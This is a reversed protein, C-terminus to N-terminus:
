RVDVIKQETVTNHFLIGDAMYVDETEVDISYTNVTETILENSTIEVWGSGTYFSDGVLVDIAQKFLIDNGTTKVLIPHESTVKTLGNNFNRYSTHQGAIVNMVTATSSSASFQNIQSSYEEWPSTTEDDGLGTIDYSALVDGVQLDEVLKTTGDALNMVTGEVHCPAWSFDISTDSSQDLTFSNGPNFNITLTDGGNSNNTGENVQITVEGTSADVFSVSSSAPGSPNEVTFYTYIGNSDTDEINVYVAGDWNFSAITTDTGTFTSPDVGTFEFHFEPISTTTTISNSPATVLVSCGVTADDPHTIILYKQNSSLGGSPGAQAEANEETSPSTRVLGSSANPDVHSFTVSAENGGTTYDNDITPNTVWYPAPSATHGSSTPLTDSWYVQASTLTGDPSMDVTYTVTADALGTSNDDSYQSLGEGGSYESVVTVNTSTLLMSTAAVPVFSLYLTDEGQGAPADGHRFDITTGVSESPWTSQDSNLTIQIDNSTIDILTIWTPLTSIISPPTTSNPTQTYGISASGPTAANFEIANQGTTGRALQLSYNTTEVQPTTATREEVVNGTANTATMRITYTTSATLETITYTFNSTSNGYDTVIYSGIGTFNGGTGTGWTIEVDTSNSISDWTTELETPFGGLAYADFNTIVPLPLPTGTTTSTTTTSTTTTTVSNDGTQTITFSDVLTNDNVWNWHRVEWQSTRTASTTNDAISFNSTGATNTDSRIVWDVSNVNVWEFNPNSTTNTGTYTVSRQITSAM